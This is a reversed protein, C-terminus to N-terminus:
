LLTVAQCNLCILTIYLGISLEIRNNLQKKSNITVKGVIANIAQLRYDYYVYKCRGYFFDLTGVINEMEKCFEFVFRLM